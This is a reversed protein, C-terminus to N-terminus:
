TSVVAGGVKKLAPSKPSEEDTVAEARMPAQKYFFAAVLCVCLCLLGAPSAHKDWIICNIVITLFKCANGVISFATASIVSRAQWSVYSMACGMACSLLLVALGQSSFEEFKDNESSSVGLLFLPLCPLANSYFVRTWNSKVKINDAAHKLYIMDFLFVLFWIGVWLYGRVEFTKDSLVYGLAGALLGFLCLTSRLGPLERGLFMYDLVCLALPTCARFVIFTEVNAYQLTKINAYITALFAMSVITFPKLHEMSLQDLEIMGAAAVIKVAVATAALQCFLITSPAGLLFIALKNVILMTSSVLMYIGIWAASSFRSKM